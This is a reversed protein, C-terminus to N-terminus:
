NRKIILRVVAPRKLILKLSLSSATNKSNPQLYFGRTAFINPLLLGKFLITAYLKSRSFAKAFKPEM